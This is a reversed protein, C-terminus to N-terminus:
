NENGYLHMQNNATKGWQGLQLTQLSCNHKNTINPNHKVTECFHRGVIKNFTTEPVKIRQELWLLV